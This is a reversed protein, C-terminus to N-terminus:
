DPVADQVVREIGDRYDRRGSEGSLHRQLVPRARAAAHSDPSARSTTPRWAGPPPPSQQSAPPRGEAKVSGPHWGHKAAIQGSSHPM